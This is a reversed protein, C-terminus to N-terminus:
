IGSLADKARQEGRRRGNVPERPSEDRLMGPRSPLGRVSPSEQQLPLRETPCGRRKTSDPAVPVPKAQYSRCGRFRLPQGVLRRGNCCSDGQTRQRGLQGPISSVFRRSLRHVAPSPALLPGLVSEASNSSVSATFVPSTRPASSPPCARDRDQAPWCFRHKLLKDVDVSVSQPDRRFPGVM